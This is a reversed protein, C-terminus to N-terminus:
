PRLRYVTFPEEVQVPDYRAAVLDKVQEEYALIRPDTHVRGFVVWSPPVAKWRSKMEAFLQRAFTPSDRLNVNTTLPFANRVGSVQYILPRYNWVYLTDGPGAHSRLYEATRRQAVPHVDDPGPFNRYVYGGVVDNVSAVLLPVGIAAVVALRAMRSASSRFLVNLGMGFAVCVSGACAAFYHEYFRGGAIAGALDAVMWLIALLMLHPPDAAASSLWRAIGGARLVQALGVASGVVGISLMPVVPLLIKYVLTGSQLLSRGGSLNIV